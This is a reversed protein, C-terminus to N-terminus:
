FMERMKNMDRSLKIFLPRWQQGLQGVDDVTAFCQKVRVSWAYVM